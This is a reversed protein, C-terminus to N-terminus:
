SKIIVSFEVKVKEWAVAITGKGGKKGKYDRPVSAAAGAGPLHGPSRVQRGPDDQFELDPSAWDPQM